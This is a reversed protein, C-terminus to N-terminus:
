LGANLQQAVVHRWSQCAGVVQQLEAVVVVAAQEAGSDGAVHEDGMGSIAEIVTQQNM